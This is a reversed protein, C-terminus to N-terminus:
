TILRLSDWLLSICGKMLLWDDTEGFKDPSPVAHFLRSLVGFRLSPEAISHCFSNGVVVLVVPDFHSHVLDHYISTTAEIITKDLKIAM